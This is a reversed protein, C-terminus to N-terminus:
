LETKYFKFSLKSTFCYFSIRLRHIKGEYLVSYSNENPNFFNNVVLMSQTKTFTWYRM